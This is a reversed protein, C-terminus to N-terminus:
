AALKNGFLKKVEEPSLDWTSNENVQAALLNGNLDYMCYLHTEKANLEYDIYESVTKVEKETLDFGKYELDNERYNENMKM